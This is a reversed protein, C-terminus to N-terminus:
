LIKTPNQDVRILEQELMLACTFRHSTELGLLYRNNKHLSLFYSKVEM